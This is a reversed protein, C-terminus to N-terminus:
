SDFLDLYELSNNNLADEDAKTLLEYDDMISGCIKKKKDGFDIHYLFSACARSVPDLLTKQAVAIEAASYKKERMARSVALIIDKQTVSRDVDLIVFPNKM